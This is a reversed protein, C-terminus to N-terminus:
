PGSTIGARKQSLPCPLPLEKARAKTPAAGHPPGRFTPGYPRHSCTQRKGIGHDRSGSFSPPYKAGPRPVKWPHFTGLSGRAQPGSGPVCTQFADQIHEARAHVQPRQTRRGSGSTGTLDPSGEKKVNRREHAKGKRNWLPAARHPRNGGILPFHGAPAFLTPRMPGFAGTRLARHGPVGYSPGRM